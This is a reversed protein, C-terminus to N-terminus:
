RGAHLRRNLDLANTTAAGLATNDFICWCEAGDSHLGEVRKALRALWADPYTSYYIKPSGHLRFYTMRADGGPDAAAAVIFPDAAVRSAGYEALMADANASFWSPHRPEVAVNGDHRRRLMTMFRAAVSREFALSPPLQVLVCGLKSGLAAVQSCFGDLQSSVGVLRAVHTVERLMKVSFRFSDPVSAAWRAYTAPRHPRYFSSNIEVANFCAAYRQLHSGEGPFSGTAAKPVSWGACGVHVPDAVKKEDPANTKM